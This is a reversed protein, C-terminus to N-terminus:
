NKIDRVIIGNYISQIVYSFMFFICNNKMLKGEFYNILIDIDKFTFEKPIRNHSSKEAFFLGIREKVKPPIDISLITRPTPWDSFTLANRKEKKNQYYIKKSPFFFLIKLEISIM